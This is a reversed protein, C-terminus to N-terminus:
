SEALNMVWEELNEKMQKIFKHEGFKKETRKESEAVSANIRMMISNELGEVVNGGSSVRENVAALNKIIHAMRSDFCSYIVRSMDQMMFLLDRM